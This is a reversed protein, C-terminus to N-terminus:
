NGVEEWIASRLEAFNNFTRNNLRDKIEKPILGIDGNQYMLKKQKTEVKRISDNQTTKGPSNRLEEANIQRM